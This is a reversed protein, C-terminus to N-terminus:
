KSAGTRGQAGPAKCQVMRDYAGLFNNVIAEYSIEEAVFERGAASLRKALGKDSFVRCIAAALREPSKQEVLLGNVNHKVADPIGGVNSAIVPKGTAMAEGIVVGQGGETEGRSDVIAPLCFVDCAAYYEPLAENAIRGAMIVSKELGLRKIENRINEEEPGTSGIILRTGPFKEIIIPMARVLFVYGKREVLRGLCFILKARGIGHKKRVGAGNNKPSFKESDIGGYFMIEMPKKVGIRIAAEKTALSNATVFDAQNAPWAALFPLKYNEALYVEAGFLHVALPFRASKKVIAGAMGQPFSWLAQVVDPKFERVAKRLAFINSVVYPLLQVRALLSKRTNEAIGNGYAVRQLSSPWFYQFRRIAVGNMLQEKPFGNGHAALVMVDHGKKAFM